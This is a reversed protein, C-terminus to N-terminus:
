NQPVWTIRTNLAYQRKSTAKFVNVASGPPQPSLSKGQSEKAACMLSKKQFRKTYKAPLDTHIYRPLLVHSINNNRSFIGTM